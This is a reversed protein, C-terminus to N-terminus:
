TDEDYRHLLSKVIKLLELLNRENSMMEWKEQGELRSRLYNTCQGIVLGYETSLNIRLNEVRKARTDYEAQLM